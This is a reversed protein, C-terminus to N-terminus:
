RQNIKNAKKQWEDIAGTHHVRESGALDVLNLMSILVAGVSSDENSGSNSGEDNTSREWSKVAICFITHSHL